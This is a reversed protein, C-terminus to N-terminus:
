KGVVALIEGEKNETDTALVLLEEGDVKIPSGYTKYIVMDGIKVDKVDKGVAVVEAM